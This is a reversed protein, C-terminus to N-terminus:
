GTDKHEKARLTHCEACGVSVNKLEEPVNQASIKRGLGPVAMAAAPTTAAHQSKKWSEVHGPHTAAHCGLCEETASGFVAEIVVPEWPALRGDDQILWRGQGDRRSEFTLTAVAPEARGADVTVEVLVSYLDAIEEGSNGVRIICEAPERRKAALFDLIM